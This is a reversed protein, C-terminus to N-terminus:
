RYRRIARVWSAARHPCYPCVTAFRSAGTSRVRTKRRRIGIDYLSYQRCGYRVLRPTCERDLKGSGIPWHRQPRGLSYSIEFGILGKGTQRFGRGYAIPLLMKGWVLCLPKM